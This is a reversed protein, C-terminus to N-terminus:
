LSFISRSSTVAYAVRTCRLQEEDDDQNAGAAEFRSRPSRFWELRTERNRWPGPFRCERRKMDFSPHRTGSASIIRRVRRKHDGQPAVPCKAPARVSDAPTRRVEGRMHLFSSSGADEGPQLFSESICRAPPPGVSDGVGRRHHQGTPMRTRHEALVRADIEQFRRSSERRGIATDLRETISVSSAYDLLLAGLHSLEALAPLITPIEQRVRDRRAPRLGAPIPELVDVDARRDGGAPALRV